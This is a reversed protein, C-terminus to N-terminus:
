LYPSFLWALMNSHRLENRDARLVKFINFQALLAELQPLESCNVILETLDTEISAASETTEPENM